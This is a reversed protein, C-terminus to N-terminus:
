ERRISEIVVPEVPVNPMGNKPSVGTPVSKIKDVVEMGSVVKGFVAYGAGRAGANLAPNDVVNVYFQATASDPDSTRAMAITGRVNSLGNNAENKVPARTPKQQLEATFGGGQVMFNGIVRHFVTGDYFKDDVYKLFNEVTLPAHAADLEVRFSGLNTKVVVVANKSATKSGPKASCGAPVAAAFLSLAILAFFRRM